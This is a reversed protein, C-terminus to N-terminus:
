VTRHRKAVFWLMLGGLASALFGGLLGQWWLTSYTRSAGPAALQVSVPHRVMASASEYTTPGNKTPYWAEIDLLLNVTKGELAALSPVTIDAWIRTPTNETDGSPVRIQGGWGVTSGEADFLTPAGLELSNLCTCRATGKWGSISPVTQDTYARFTDGPGLVPPKLHPNLPWGQSLRMAEPAAAGLPALLVLGVAALTIALSFVGRAPVREPSARTGPKELELRGAHLLKQAKALNAALNTNTNFLLAALHVAVILLASAVVFLAAKHIGLVAGLLLGFVGAGLSFLSMARHLYARRASIMGVPILGCHPCPSLNIHQPLLLNKGSARRYVAGCGSCTCQEWNDSASYGIRVSGM